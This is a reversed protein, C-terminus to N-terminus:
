PEFEEIGCPRIKYEGKEKEWKERRDNWRLRSDMKEEKLTPLKYFLSHVDFV